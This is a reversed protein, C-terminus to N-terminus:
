LKNAIGFLDTKDLLSTKKPMDKEFLEPQIPPNKDNKINEWDIDKIKIFFIFFLYKLKFNFGKFFKHKKLEELSLREDPNLKLM